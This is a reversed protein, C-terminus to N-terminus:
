TNREKYNGCLIAFPTKNFNKGCPWRTGNGNVCKECSVPYIVGDNWDNEADLLNKYKTSCGCKQCRFSCLDEKMKLEPISTGCAYCPNLKM